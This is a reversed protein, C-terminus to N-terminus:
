IEGAFMGRYHRYWESQFREAPDARRKAQLFEVFGPHAALVQGRNAWRHYTLFYSGGRELGRDILGTFQRQAAALGDPDHPVHLNFIICAWSRRAWPLASEDDQEILRITGYILDAGQRILDGRVAEMFGALADRPVYIETIMETGSADEGLRPALIQHYDRVYTSMQHMDSWYIQGSSALYHEAYVTFARARDTHALLLLKRWDEESLERQGEPMPTDDDVPRYCSFVGRRMGDESALDTSYQFDGYVFGDAIRQRFAADLGEIARLEVVRQLKRRRALRLKVSAIVGFLGYGGIAHRFLDANEARSCQRIEGEADV